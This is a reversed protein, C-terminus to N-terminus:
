LEYKNKMLNRFGPPFLKGTFRAEWDHPPVSQKFDVAIKLFV